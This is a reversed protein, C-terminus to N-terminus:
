EWREVATIASKFLELIEPNAKHDAIYNQFAPFVTERLWKETKPENQLIKPKAATKVYELLPLFLLSIEKDDTQQILLKLLASPTASGDFLMRSFAGATNGKLEYECRLLRTKAIWKEYVRLFKGSLRSGVYVTALTEGDKNTSEVWGVTRKILKQRNFLAWQQWAKPEITTIQLDIRRCQLWGERIGQGIPILMDTDNCLEGSIQIMYHMAGKQEACGCFVSGLENTVTEGIYQMTKVTLRKGGNGEAISKLKNQVDYVLPEFSTITLWDIGTQDLTITESHYEM